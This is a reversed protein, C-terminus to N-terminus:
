TNLLGHCLAESLDRPIGLIVKPFSATLGTGTVPDSLVGIRFPELGNM